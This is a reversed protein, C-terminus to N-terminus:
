ATDAGTSYFWGPIPIFGAVALTVACVSVTVSGSDAIELLAPQSSTVSEVSVIRRVTVHVAVDAPPVAREATTMLSSLVFGTTSYTPLAPVYVTSWVTFMVQVAESLREPTAEDLQALM